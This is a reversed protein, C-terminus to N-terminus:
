RGFWRKKQPPEAPQSQRALLVRIGILQTLWRLPKERDVDEDFDGLWDPNDEAIKTYAWEQIPLSDLNDESGAIEAQLVLFKQWGTTLQESRQDYAAMATSAAALLDDEPPRAPAPNDRYFRELVQDRRLFEELREEEEANIGAPFAFRGELVARIDPDALYNPM